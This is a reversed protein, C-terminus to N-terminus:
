KRPYMGCWTPEGNKYMQLYVDWSVTTLHYTASEKDSREVTWDKLIEEAPIKLTKDAWAQAAARYEADTCDGQLDSEPPYDLFFCGMELDYTETFHPTLYAIISEPERGATESSGTSFSYDIRYQPYGDKQKACSTVTMEAPLNMVGQMVRRAASDVTDTDLATPDFAQGETGSTKEAGTSGTSKLVWDDYEVAYERDHFTAQCLQGNVEYMELSVLYNRTLLRYEVTGWTEFRQDLTWESLIDEEPYPLYKEAWRNAIAKLEEDSLVAQSGSTDPEFDYPYDIMVRITAAETPNSGEKWLIVNEAMVRYPTEEPSAYLDKGSESDLDFYYMFEIYDERYAYRNASDVSMSLPLPFVKHAFKRSSKELLDPRVEWETEQALAFAALENDTMARYPYFCFPHLYEYLDRSYGPLHVQCSRSTSPATFSERDFVGSRVMKKLEELRSQESPSLTRTAYNYLIPTGRVCNTSDLSDPDFPIGLEDFASILSLLQDQNMQFDPLIVYFTRGAFDAPDLAYVGGEAANEANAYHRDTFTKKEGAERAALLEQVMALEANTLRPTNLEDEEEVIARDPLYQVPPIYSSDDWVAEEYEDEEYEDDAEADGTEEPLSIQPAPELTDETLALASFPFLTIALLIALLTTFSHNFRIM